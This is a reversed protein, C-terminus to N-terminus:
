AQLAAEVADIAATIDAPTIDLHMVARIKTDSIQKMRVGATALRELVTQADLGSVGVDFYVINTEVLNQALAVGALGSLGAALERARAHDEGLREINHRLAYIGAAAMMGAKHTVGGFLYKAQRARGVFQEGGAMVAGMPCGLGKSLDIWASDVPACFEATSAGSAAVANLLRAGDVHVAIGGARAAASAEGIQAVSWVSGGSRNHTNELSLLSPRAGDRQAAALDQEIAAGGLVGREGPLKRLALGHHVHPGAYKSYVPHTDEHLLLADGPECWVSFAVVNCMTGSPMFVAAPKGMLEAVLEELERVTPDEGREEDGVEAAAMFERMAESPRSANDSVLDIEFPAFSRDAWTM